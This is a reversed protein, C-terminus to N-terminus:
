RKHHPTTHGLARNKAAQGGSFPRGVNRTNNGHAQAHTTSSHHTTNDLNQTLILFRVEIEDNQLFLM